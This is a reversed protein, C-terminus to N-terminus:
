PQQLKIHYKYTKKLDHDSQVGTIIVFGNRYHSALIKVQQSCNPIKLNSSM